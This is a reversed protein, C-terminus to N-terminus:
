IVTLKKVFMSKLNLVVQTKQYMHQCGHLILCNSCSYQELSDIRREHQYIKEIIKNFAMKILAILNGMEKLQEAQKQSVGASFKDGFATSQKQKNKSNLFIKEYTEQLKIVHELKILDLQSPANM